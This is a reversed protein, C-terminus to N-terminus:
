ELVEFDWFKHTEPDFSILTEAYEGKIVLNQKREKYKINWKNFWDQWLERDTKEKIPVFKPYTISDDGCDYSEQVYTKEGDESCAIGGSGYRSWDILQKWENTHNYKFYNGNWIMCENRRKCKEGQCVM